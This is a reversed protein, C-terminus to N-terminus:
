QNIANHLMQIYEELHLKELQENYADWSEDIDVQGAIWEATKEKIYDSISTEYESLKASEEATAWYSPIASEVLNPAYIECVNKKEDFKPNKETFKFDTPIYRPLSQPYLNTWSYMDKQEDTMNTNDIIYGDGDEFVAINLPGGNTQVSNELEFMNDWWRIIAAPNEANDTVVVQNKLVTTGYSDRFWTPNDCNESKLVPLPVWDPTEGALFPMIDGSGYMMSVGYIDTSGKAKWQAQDQTFMEQDLLGDAYLGSFYKLMDKYSDSNAGFTLEDGVMGFGKDNIPMGFWGAYYGLKKNVPDFAFPIEDTADGNGNADQTKFAELVARLEETTTPVEMGVNELWRTNIYPNFDVTPASLVYPISYIHGDPATMKDRVGELELVAQINPAYAEIYEELPIFTGMGVGFKLIDTASLIWGGIVDAYDGSNLSLSYKEKAVEYPFLQVDVEIGTQEELVPILYFEDTTKNGDTFISFTYDGADVIPLGEKYVVGDIKGDDDVTTVIDKKADTGGNAEKEKGCGTLMTSICMVLVVITALVRQKKM